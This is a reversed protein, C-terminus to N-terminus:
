SITIDLKYKYKYTSSQNYYKSNINLNFLMNLELIVYFKTKIIMYIPFHM